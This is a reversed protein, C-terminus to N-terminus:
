WSAVWLWRWLTKLTKFVHFTQMWESMYSGWWFIHLHCRYLVTFSRVNTQVHELWTKKRLDSPQAPRKVRVLHLRSKKEQKGVKRPVIFALTPLFHPLASPIDSLIFASNIDAKWCRAACWLTQTFKNGCTHVPLAWYEAHWVPYALPSPREKTSRMYQCRTASAM